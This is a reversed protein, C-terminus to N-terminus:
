AYVYYASAQSSVMIYLFDLRILPSIVGLLILIDIGSIVISQADVYSHYDASILWAFLSLSTSTPHLITSIM